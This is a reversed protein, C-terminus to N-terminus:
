AASRGSAPQRGRSRQVSIAACISRREIADRDEVLIADQPLVECQNLGAQARIVELAGGVASRLRVQRDLEVMSIGPQGLRTRLELDEHVRWPHFPADARRCPRARPAGSTRDSPLSRVSTEPEHLRLHHLVDDDHPRISPRKTTLRGGTAPSALRSLLATFFAIADLLRQQAPARGSRCGRGRCPPTEAVGRAGRDPSVYRTTAASLPFRLRKRCRSRTDRSYPKKARRRTRRPARGAVVVLLHADRRAHTPLRSAASGPLADGRFVSKVTASLRCTPRRTRLPM